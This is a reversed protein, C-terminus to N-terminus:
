GRRRHRLGRSSRIDHYPWSQGRLYRRLGGPSLFVNIARTLSRAQRCLRYAIRHLVDDACLQVQRYLGLADPKYPADDQDLDIKAYHRWLGHVRVVVFTTRDHYVVDPNVVYDVLNFRPFSAVYDLHVVFFMTWDHYAASVVDYDVHDQPWVGGPHRSVDGLNVAPVAVCCADGLSKYKAILTQKLNNSSHWGHYYKVMRFWVCLAM